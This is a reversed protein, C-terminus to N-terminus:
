GGLEVADGVPVSTVTVLVSVFFCAAQGSGPTTLKGYFAIKERLSGGAQWKLDGVYGGPQQNSGAQLSGKRIQWDYHGPSAPDFSVTKM